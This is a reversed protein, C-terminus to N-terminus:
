NEQQQRRRQQAQSLLNQQVASLARPLRPGYVHIVGEGGRVAVLANAEPRTSADVIECGYVGDAGQYYVIYPRRKPAM